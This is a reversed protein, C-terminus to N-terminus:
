FNAEARPKINLKHNTTELEYSDLQYILVQFQGM